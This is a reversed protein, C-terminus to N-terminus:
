ILSAMLEGNEPSKSETRGNIALYAAGLQLINMLFVLRVTYIPFPEQPNNIEKKGANLLREECVQLNGHVVQICSDMNALFELFFILIM